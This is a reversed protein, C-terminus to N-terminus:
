RLLENNRVPAPLGVSFNMTELLYCIKCEFVGNYEAFLAAYFATNCSVITQL